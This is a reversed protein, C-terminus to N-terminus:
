KEGKCLYQTNLWGTQDVTSVEAWVGSSLGTLTVIAGADLVAVIPATVGASARLNLHEDACVISTQPTPSPFATPTSTAPAFNNRGPMQASQSVCALAALALVILTLYTKM